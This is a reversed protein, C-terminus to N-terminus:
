VDRHPKDSYNLCLPPLTPSGVASTEPQAGATDPSSSELIARVRTRARRGGLHLLVGVCGIFTAVGLVCLRGTVDNPVLLILLVFAGVCLVAKSLVFYQEYDITSSGVEKEYDVPTSMMKFFRAVEEREASSSFVHLLRCVATTALGFVMIWLTRKQITWDTGNVRTDIFSWISPIMCAAFIPFYSWKPLKKLWLGMLMPFGMPVGIVSGIILYTDFLAVTGQRAILVAYTIIVGGLIVTAVHCIRIETRPSLDDHYGLAGRMRPIINRVINGVVGNLGSDMSSMTAAFMAAILMGLMGNPLLRMAIYAYASEAPKNIASSMIEGEFLFRAVM